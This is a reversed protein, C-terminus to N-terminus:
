RRPGPGTNLGKMSDNMERMAEWNIKYLNAWHERQESPMKPDYSLHFGLRRSVAGHAETRITESDDQLADILAPVADWLKQDDIESIMHLRIAEDKDEQLVKVLTAEDMSGARRWAVVSAERVDNKTSHDIIHKFVEAHRDHEDHEKRALASLSSRVDKIPAKELVGVFANLDELAAEDIPIPTDPKSESGFFNVSLWVVGLVACAIFLWHQRTM